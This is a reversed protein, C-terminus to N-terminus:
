DVDKVNSPLTRVAGDADMSTADSAHDSPGDPLPKSLVNRSCSPCRNAATPRARSGCHPCRAVSKPRSLVTSITPHEALRDSEIEADGGDKAPALRAGDGGAGADSPSIGNLRASAQGGRQSHALQSHTLQHNRAKRGGSRQGLLACAMAADEDESAQDAIAGLDEEVASENVAAAEELAHPLVARPTQTPHQASSRMRTSAPLAPSPLEAAKAAKKAAKKKSAKGSKSQTGSSAAEELELERLLAEAAANARKEAVEREACLRVRERAESEAQSQKLVSVCETHGMSLALQMPTKGNGDKLTRSAGFSLLAALAAERGGQIAVHLPTAGSFSKLDVDAQADVLIRICKLSDAWAAAHLPANGLSSRQNAQAGKSILLATCDAHGNACAFALASNGNEGTMNVDTGTSVLQTLVPLNGQEAADCLPNMPRFQVPVGDKGGGFSDILKDLISVGREPRARTEASPVAAAGSGSFALGVQAPSINAGSVSKVWKLAHGQLMGVSKAVYLLEEQSLEDLYDQDDYGKAKFAPAYRDLGLAALNTEVQAFRDNEAM